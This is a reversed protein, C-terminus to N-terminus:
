EVGELKEFYMSAQELTDFGRFAQHLPLMEVMASLADSYEHVQKRVIFKSGKDQSELNYDDGRMLVERETGYFDYKDPVPITKM